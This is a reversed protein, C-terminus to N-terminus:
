QGCIRIRALFESVTEIVTDCAENCLRQTSGLLFTSSPEEFSNAFAYGTQNEFRASTLAELEM